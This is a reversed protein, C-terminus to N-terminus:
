FGKVNRGRESTKTLLFSTSSEEPDRAGAKKQPLCFMLTQLKM